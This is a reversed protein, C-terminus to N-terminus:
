DTTEELNSTLPTLGGKRMGSKPLRNTQAQPTVKRGKFPAPKSRTEAKTVQFGDVFVASDAKSPGNSNSKGIGWLLGSGYSSPFSFLCSGLKAHDLAKTVGCDKWAAKYDEAKPYDDKEPIDWIESMHERALGVIRSQRLFPSKGENRLHDILAIVGAIFGMVSGDIRNAKCYAQWNSYAEDKSMIEREKKGTM